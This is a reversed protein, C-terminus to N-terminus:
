KTNPQLPRMREAIWHQITENSKLITEKGHPGEPVLALQKDPHSWAALIEECGRRDAVSDQEGYIMLLPVKQAKAQAAMSEILKQVGLMYSLSFYKVLMPDQNRQRAEARERPDSIREPDGSMNVIPTHPAFLYYAAYRMYEWWTPTMGPAAKRRYPPNVLIIGDVRDLAQAAALAVACSMSHGFIFVRRSPTLAPADQAIGEIFDDVFRTLSIIDGRTGESYGTGRPFVAVVRRDVGALTNLVDRDMRPNMGTIGPAMYATSSAGSAPQLKVVHLRLGDRTTFFADEGSM